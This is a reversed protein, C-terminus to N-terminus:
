RRRDGAGAVLAWTMDAEWDRIAVELDAEVRLPSDLTGLVDRGVTAKATHNEFFGEDQLRLVVSSVIRHPRAGLCRIRSNCPNSSYSQM